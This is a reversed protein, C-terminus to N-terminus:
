GLVLGGPQTGNQGSAIHWSVLGCDFFDLAKKTNLEGDRAHRIPEIAVAEGELFALRCGSFSARLSLGFEDVLVAVELVVQWLPFDDKEQIGCVGGHCGFQAVTPRDFALSFDNRCRRSFRTL